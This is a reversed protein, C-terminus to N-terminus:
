YAIIYDAPKDHTETPIQEVLQEKFCVGVTTARFGNLSLYRDYFGKGRGMRSGTSTFAVGPMVMLDIEEPACSIDGQPEAIGFEGALMKEPAYDFFHMEDGEIRPLVIRKRGHWKEIFKQSQPEDPLSAFLAVVGAEAFASLSEVASFIQQSAQQRQSQSLTAIRSRVIHRLNRKETTM